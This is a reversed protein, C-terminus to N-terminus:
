SCFFQNLLGRGIHILATASLHLIKLTFVCKVKSMDPSLHRLQITTLCYHPFYGKFVDKDDGHSELSQPLLFPKLTNGWAMKVLPFPQLPGTQGKRQNQMGQSHVWPALLLSYCTWGGTAREMSLFLSPLYGSARRKGKFHKFSCM